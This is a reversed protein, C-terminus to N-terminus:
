GYVYANVTLRNDVATVGHASWATREAEEKEAISTVTGRLIVNGGEAQVQVRDADLQAHRKFAESIKNRIEGPSAKPRIVIDNTIGRIGTMGRLANYAARRQYDWEVEGDLTLWANSVTVKVSDPIGAAWDLASVAAEALAEDDQLHEEAILVELDNAIGHVGRVRKVIKEALRKEAYSGVHGELTIVGEQGATVAVRSSDIAPDWALEELVETQLVETPKM